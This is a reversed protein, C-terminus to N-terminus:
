IAAKIAQLWEESQGNMKKHEQSAKHITTSKKQINDDESHCEMHKHVEEVRKVDEYTLDEEAV